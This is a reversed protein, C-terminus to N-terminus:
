AAKAKELQDKSVWWGHVQPRLRHPISVKAVPGESVAGANLIWAEHEFDSEGTQRDIICVLWGPHGDESSAIHAPESISHGPPLTLVDMKGTSPDVGILANFMVGVPGGFVPPGKMEPNISLYWGRTYPRGQDADRIRCLDGPPGIETQEIEDGKPDFSWRM